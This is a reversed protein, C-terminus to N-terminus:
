NELHGKHRKIKIIYIVHMTIGFLAGIIFVVIPLYLQEFEKGLDPNGNEMQLKYFAPILYIFGVTLIASVIVKIFYRTKIFFGGIKGTDWYAPKIEKGSIIIIYSM